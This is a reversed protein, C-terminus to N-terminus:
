YKNLMYKGKPFGSLPIAEFAKKLAWGVFSKKDVTLSPEFPELWTRREM